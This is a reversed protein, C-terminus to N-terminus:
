SAHKLTQQQGKSESTKYQDGTHLAPSATRNAVHPPLATQMVEMSPLTPFTM